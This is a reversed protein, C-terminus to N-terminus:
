DFWNHKKMAKQILTLHLQKSLQKEHALADRMAELQEEKRELSANLNQIM